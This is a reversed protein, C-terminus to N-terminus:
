IRFGSVEETTEGGNWGFSPTDLGLARLATVHAKSYNGNEERTHVGKAIHGNCGGAFVCPIENDSHKFGEGYESLGLILSRDLLTTGLPDPTAQFRALLAAFAEMQKQMVNRVAQWDGAHCTSHLDNPSGLEPFTHTSAPSTLMFSFVRSLNCALAKALLEAMADTKATIDASNAPVEPAECAVGSIQLRKQIADIHELHEDLRSQDAAGLRKRLDKGDERVADLLSARRKLLNVDPAVSFLLNFLQGPDMIPQNYSDAGNLSIANWHGFEHFRAPSAGVVLSSYKTPGDAYFAPNTAVVQDLTPRLSTLIHEPQIFGEPRIRDGTMAVMFGRMHGDSQGPPDAPIETHPQLGTAISPQYPMLPALLPTSAYGAGTTTPTWDDPHGAQEGGHKDNWPLGGGWFFMGFIPPSEAAKASRPSLMAEMTPLALGLATGGAVGRLLTRRSLKLSSM